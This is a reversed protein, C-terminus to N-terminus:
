SETLKVLIETYTATLSQDMFMDDHDSDPFDIIQLHAAIRRVIELNDKKKDTLGNKMANLYVVPGDYSEVPAENKEMQYVSNFKLVLDEAAIMNHYAELQEPTVDEVIMARDALENNFATDGMIVAPLEGTEEHWNRAMNYAVKGGWSFGMFAAIRADPPLLMDLQTGYLWLATNFDEGQLVYNFHSDLPEIVLINYYESWIDFKVMTVATSVIGQAFVLVPKQPDYTNFLWALRINGHLIDRIKRYRMVSAVTVNLGIAKLQVTYRMALLSTMGIDFLNDTVGFEIGPLLERAIRLMEAETDNAPAENELHLSLDPEPLAKRNIKGNPTLPMQEMCIYITPVMYETLKEGLFARLAKEDIKLQTIPDDSKQVSYYLCLHQSQMITKIAAAASIIGPFLLARNEIEGLEIRYGRLKVQTDIRGMFELDGNANYRVLDGTHYMRVKRGWDDRDIFPCDVFVKATREPLQWYGRGVQIGAFCLEGPVGQPVLQGYKDVVFNYCNPVSKGIPINVVKEGPAIKYYSTDDTCETPGYVNIIEIHDSYVGDLKEGGATIFRVPMQPYTNLMLAAVATSYGGGTIQHATLFEYILQPDKRIETPMVHFSGGLTLIPYMDEIHADFSFSRHGEIRDAATLQEMDIVINIFNWLGAQHLMAGKPKGTSGSTYIMYALNDPTTKNIPECDATFDVDDVYLIAARSSDFGGEAQKAALVEHTTVLVRAASNEIMYNLRDNPYEFDLPSYAAGAKHIALVTMPFEKFRDLMVCVFDNPQVGEEVLRHALVDSFHSMERYTLVSNKDAVAVADPCLAARREFAKAFTMTIDVDLHRGTSIAMVDRLEAEGLLGADNIYPKTSMQAALNMVCRGLTEIDARCYMNGDYELVLEFCDDGPMATVSLPFKTTDLTLPLQEVGDVQGREDDLGGQYVFMIGPRLGHREVLRTYPYFDREYTQQLQEQMRNVFDTTKVEVRQSKPYVVPLTKVFMGICNQLAANGDRGNSVTLYMPTEEHTLRQLAEMFVAQMYSNATVGHFTCFRDIDARPVSVKVMGNDVGDPKESTRYVVATAEAMIDDFYEEARAYEESDTLEREYLAFDFASITEPELTAGDYAKLMDRIFVGTSLGDFVTHHRDMFLYVATPTQYVEIRYLADLMLDFPRVRQQFFSLEPTEDLTVLKVVAPASDNRHQVYEGDHVEFHMKLYPHADVTAKLAEVLRQPDTETFRYLAPINYQTTGRNMEWELIIGRVNETVPYYDRQNYAKINKMSGGQKMKMAIQRITPQTMIDAMRVMKGQHQQIAASLRMAALSSLGLSILNNTVGFERTNLIGAALEFIAREEETEPAIIDGMNIEPEPLAKRDIKGNPLTPMQELCVYFEPRMYVALTSKEMHGRLQDETVQMGEKLTYYMVLHPMGLVQRVQAVAMLIGDQRMATTEIEGPEIRYGRLKVQSDIRGLCELLGEENYRALDGTKYIRFSTNNLQVEKFAERTKDDLHWYGRGVQPGAYCLEGAVGQPLLHGYSDMIFCHSNAMPRGIPIVKYQRGKELRYTAAHDTCETPGYVNIIQVNDSVVGTLAEGGCTIFRQKLDYNTLLLKAVSTTYGGGTIQHDCLFRYIADLDKRISNPMLHVSAGAALTPFIDEIHADFSFSRHSSIRDEATLQNIDITAMTFNMLGRQHLMVGKPQGTSGSTYIMYALSDPTALSAAHGAAKADVVDTGNVTLCGNGLTMGSIVLQAGSDSLMYDIRDEPYDPDVPLYAAGSKHIGIIAVLFEKVREMKIAVFDNQRIHKTTLWAALVDSWQDLEAYTMQSDADAVALADPRTKVQM